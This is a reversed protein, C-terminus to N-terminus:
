VVKDFVLWLPNSELEIYAEAKKEYDSAHCQNLYSMLTMYRDYFCTVLAQSFQEIISSSNPMHYVRVLYSTATDMINEYEQQM